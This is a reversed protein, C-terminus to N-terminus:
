RHDDVKNTDVPLCFTVIYKAIEVVLMEIPRKAPVLELGLQERVARLFGDKDPEGPGRKWQWRLDLHGTMRNKWFFM